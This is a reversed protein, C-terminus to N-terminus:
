CFYIKKYIIISVIISITIAVIREDNRYAHETMRIGCDICKGKGAASFYLVSPYRSVDLSVARLRFSKEM